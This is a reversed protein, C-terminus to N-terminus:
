KKPRICSDKLALLGPLYVRLHNEHAFLKNASNTIDRVFCHGQVVLVHWCARQPVAHPFMACYSTVNLLLIFYQM